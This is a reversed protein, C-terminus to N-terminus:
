KEGDFEPPNAPTWHSVETLEFASDGFDDNFSGCVDYYRFVFEYPEDDVKVWCIQGNKPHTTEDVTIKIWNMKKNKNNLPELEDGCDQFIQRAEMKKYEPWDLSNKAAMELQRTVGNIRM